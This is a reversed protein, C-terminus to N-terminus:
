EEPFWKDVAKESFGMALAFYRVFRYYDELSMLEEDETGFLAFTCDVSDNYKSPRYDDYVFRMEGFKDIKDMYCKRVKLAAM